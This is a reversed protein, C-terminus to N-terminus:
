NDSKAPLEEDGEDPPARKRRRKKDQEEPKVFVPGAFADYIAESRLKRCQEEIAVIEEITIQHTM